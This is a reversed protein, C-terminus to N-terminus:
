KVVKPVIFVLAAAVIAYLVIKQIRDESTASNQTALTTLGAINQDTLTQQSKLADGFLGSAFSLVGAGADMVSDIARGAISSQSALTERALSSNADLSETAFRAVRDASGGAADTARSLATGAFDLAGMYARQANDLGVFAVENGANIGSQGLALAARSIDTAATLAGFDTTTINNGNSNALTIGSTDQLNLNQTNTTQSQATSTRASSSSM